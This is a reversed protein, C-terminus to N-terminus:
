AAIPYFPKRRLQNDSLSGCVRLLKLEEDSPRYNPISRRAPMVDRFELTSCVHTRQHTPQGYSEQEEGQRPGGPGSLCSARRLLRITPGGRMASGRMRRM